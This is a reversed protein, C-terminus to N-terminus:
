GAPFAVERGEARLVLLGERATVTQLQMGDVLTPLPLEIGILDSLESVVFSPITIGAASAGEVDLRATSGDDIMVRADVSIPVDTGLVEFTTGLRVVDGDIGDVTIPLGILEALNAEPVEISATADTVVAGSVDGSIADSLPIRVDRLDMKLDVRGLQQADIGPADIRIRDYSGALAQTLLPFRSISVEPQRDAGLRTQLDDAVREAAVYAVVRDAIVLLALLSVVAVVLVRPWRRPRRPVPLVATSM